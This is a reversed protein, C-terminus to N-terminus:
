SGVTVDIISTLFVVAQPSDPNGDSNRPAGNPTEYVVAIESGDPSWSAYDVLEGGRYGSGDAKAVYMAGNLVFLIEDGNPSWSM